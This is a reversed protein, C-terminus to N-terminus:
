SESVDEHWRRRQPRPDICAWLTTCTAMECLATIDKWDRVYPVRNVVTPVARALRKLVRAKSRIRVGEPTPAALALYGGEDVIILRNGVAALNASGLGRVRRAIEGSRVNVACM